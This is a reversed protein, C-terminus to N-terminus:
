LAFLRRANALTAGAVAAITLGRLEAIRKIVEIVYASENRRGRYPVPAVFPCDTEALLQVLPMKKIIEITDAGPQGAKPPFTIVGTFSLTCGRDLFKKATPWDGAFFHLNAPPPNNGATLVSLLETYANRCHIMLPKKVSEALEIQREFIEIQRKGNESGIDFKGSRIELGCEGISVVRKHRALKELEAFTNETQDPEPLDTPHIGVTAWMKEHQEALAVAQRSTALDTGVNIVGIEAEKARAIVESRDEAFQSFQLHAHIDILNM